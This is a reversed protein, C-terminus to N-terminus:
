WHRDRARNLSQSTPPGSGEPGGHEHIVMARMTSM